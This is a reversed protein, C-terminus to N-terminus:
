YLASQLSPSTFTHQTAFLGRGTKGYLAQQVGHTTWLRFRGPLRDSVSRPEAQALVSCHHRIDAARFPVVFFTCYMHIGM